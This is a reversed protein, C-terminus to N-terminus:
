GLNPSPPSCGMNPAPCVNLDFVTGDFAIGLQDFGMKAAPIIRYPHTGSKIGEPFLKTFPDPAPMYATKSYAVTVMGLGYGAAKLEAIDLKGDKNQDEAVIVAAFGVAPDGLCPCMTADMCSRMCSMVSDPPPQLASIAIDYRAPTPDFAEEYAIVPSATSKDDFPAWVIALRGAQITTKPMVPKLQLCLTNAPCVAFGGGTGTTASSTGGGAGSSTASTATGTSTSGPGTSENGGCAWLAAAAAVASSALVLRRM